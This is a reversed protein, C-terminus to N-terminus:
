CRVRAAQSRRFRLLIQSRVQRKQRETAIEPGSPVVTDRTPVANRKLYSSRKTGGNQEISNLVLRNHEYCSDEFHAECLSAYKSTSDKFDPRQRRVFKVMQGQTQDSPFQHMRTGKKYRDKCSQGNPAGAVCYRGGRSKAKGCDDMNTQQKAGVMVDCAVTLHNKPRAIQIGNKTAFYVLKWSKLFGWNKDYVGYVKRNHMELILNDM